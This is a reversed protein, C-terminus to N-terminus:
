TELDVPCEMSALQRLMRRLLAVDGASFEKTLKQDYARAQKRLDDYVGRGAATLELHEARRDAEDRSRSVWRREALKAVARSIKTKHIKARQSIDRATMRNYMGLHFLVRWETRLMGYRGKYLKQFELSSDEAARNLLFPLFDQVIFDDNKDM